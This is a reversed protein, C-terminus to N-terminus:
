MGRWIERVSTGREVVDVDRYTAVVLNMSPNTVGFWYRENKFHPQVWRLWPMASPQAHFLFRHTTYESVSFVAAGILAALFSFPVIGLAFIVIGAVVALSLGVNSGHRFFTLIM